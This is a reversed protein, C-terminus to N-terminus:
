LHHSLFFGQRILRSAMSRSDKHWVSDSHMSGISGSVWGAPAKRLIAVPAMAWVFTLMSLETVRPWSCSSVYSDENGSTKLLKILCCLMVNESVFFATFTPSVATMSWSAIYALIISRITLWRSSSRVSTSLQSSAANGGEINLGSPLMRIAVLLAHRFSQRATSVETRTHPCGETITTSTEATRHVNGQGGCPVTWVNILVNLIPNCVFEVIRIDMQYQVPLKVVRGLAACPYSTCRLFGWSSHMFQALNSSVNAQTVPSILMFLYHFVKIPDM